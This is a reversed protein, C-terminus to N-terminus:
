WKNLSSTLRCTGETVGFAKQEVTVKLMLKILLIRGSDSLVIIVKFSM